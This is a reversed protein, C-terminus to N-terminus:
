PQTAKQIVENARELLTYDTSMAVESESLYVGFRGKIEELVELLEPAAAILIANAEAQESYLTGYAIRDGLHAIRMGKATVEPGVKYTNNMRWPGPTHKTKM